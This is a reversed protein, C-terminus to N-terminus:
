ANLLSMAQLALDLSRHQRGLSGLCEAFGNLGDGFGSPLVMVGWLCM